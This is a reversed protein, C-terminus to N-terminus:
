KIWGAVLAALTASAILLWLLLGHVFPRAGVTRVANRDLGAGIFFLTLTLLSRSLTTIGRAAAHWHPMATFLASLGIFGAIFWPIQVSRRESTHDGRPAFWLGLVLAVPVIWLARALKVTTATALAEAGHTMAAGTVSSTDHIALACWLGFTHADLGVWTGVVPFVILAAGNLLFVTALAASTEALSADIAPAVAAIASGGCIGTGAGILTAIKTEVGLRRALWAALAFTALLGILTYGLGQLGVRAVIALNVGAGLGIVALQLLWKSARTTARTCPNGLALALATGALLAAWAPTWPLLSAVAGLPLLLSALRHAPREPTTGCVTRFDFSM